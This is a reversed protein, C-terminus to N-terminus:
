RTVEPNLKTGSLDVDSNELECWTPDPTKKLYIDFAMQADVPTIRLDGNVDSCKTCFTALLSKDNNMVLRTRPSFVRSQGVDGGWKSFRYDAYAVSKLSVTSGVSFTYNGPSPETTGGQGPAPAGTEVALALDATASVTGVTVTAKASAKVSTSDTVTLTATFDGASSYTHSPNQSTSSGGDGFTWSFSYPSSGGTASGTFNV